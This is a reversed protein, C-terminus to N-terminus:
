MFRMSLLLTALAKQRYSERLTWIHHVSLTIVATELVTDTITAIMWFPIQVISLVLETMTHQDSKGFPYVEGDVGAV